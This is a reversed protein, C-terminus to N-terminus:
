KPPPHSNHKKTFTFTLYPIQPLSPVKFLKVFIFYPPYSTSSSYVLLKTVKLHWAIIQHKGSIVKIKHVAGVIGNEWIPVDSPLPHLSLDTYEHFPLVLLKLHPSSSLVWFDIGAELYQSVKTVKPLLWVRNIEM